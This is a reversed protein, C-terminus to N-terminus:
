KSISYDVDERPTANFKELVTPMKLSSTEGKMADKQAVYSFLALIEDSELLNLPVVQALENAHLMTFRIHPLVDKLLTKMQGNDVKGDKEGGNEKAWRVIATFIELEKASFTDRKLIEILVAKPLKSWTKHQLMKSSKVDFWVLIAKRTNGTSSVLKQVANDPSIEKPLGIVKKERGAGTIGILECENSSGISSAAYLTKGQLGTFAARGGAQPKGNKWFRISGEDMDLECRITDGSAYGEGYDTHSNNFWCKGQWHYSWSQGNTYGLAQEVDCEPLMVGVDAPNTRRNFKFEFVHKGKTYAITGRVLRDSSTGTAIRNEGSLTITTSKGAPDWTLKSPGGTDDSTITVEELSNDEVVQETKKKTQPRLQPSISLLIEGRDNLGIAKLTSDQPLSDLELVDQLYNV